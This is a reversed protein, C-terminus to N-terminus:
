IGHFGGCLIELCWVGHIYDVTGKVGEAVAEGGYGM